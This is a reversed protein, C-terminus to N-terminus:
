YMVDLYYYLHNSGASFQWKEECLSITKACGRPMFISRILKVLYNLHKKQVRLTILLHRLSFLWKKGKLKPIHM